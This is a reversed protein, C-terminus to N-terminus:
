ARFPEFNIDRLDPGPKGRTRVRDADSSHHIVIGQTYWFDRIGGVRFFYRSVYMIIVIGCWVLVLGGMASTIERSDPIERYAPVYRM